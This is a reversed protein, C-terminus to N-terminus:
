SKMLYSEIRRIKSTIENFAELTKEFLRRSSQIKERLDYFNQNQYEMAELSEKINSLLNANKLPIEISNQSVANINLLRSKTDALSQSINKSNENALREIKSHNEKLTKSTQSIDKSLKALDNTLDASYTQNSKEREIEANFYITRAGEALHNVLSLNKSHNEAILEYLENSYFNAKEIINKSNIDIKSIDESIDYISKILEEIQSYATEFADRLIKSSSSIEASKAEIEKISEAYKLRRSKIQKAENNIKQTEEALKSLTEKNNKQLKKFKGILESFFYLAQEVENKADRSGLRRANEIMEKAEDYKGAQILKASERLRVMPKTVIAAIILAIISFYLFITIYVLSRNEILYFLLSSTEVNTKPVSKIKQAANIYIDWPQYYISAAISSQTENNIEAIYNVGQEKERTIKLSSSLKEFDWSKNPKGVISRRLKGNIRQSIWLINENNGFRKTLSEIINIGDAVVIAAIIEGSSNTLPALTKVKIEDNEFYTKSLTKGSLAKTIKLNEINKPNSAAILSAYRKEGGGTSNHVIRLMDGRPNVRQYIEINGDITNNIENVCNPVVNPMIKEGGLELIPLEILEKEKTKANVTQWMVESSQFSYDAKKAGGERKIIEIAIQADKEASKQLASTKLDCLAKVERLTQKVQVEEIKEKPPSTKKSDLDNFYYHLSLIAISTVIILLSFLLLIETRINLKM